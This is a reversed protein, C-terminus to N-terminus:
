CIMFNARFSLNQFNKFLISKLGNKVKSKRKFLLPTHENFDLLPDPSDRGVTCNNHFNDASLFIRLFHSVDNNKVHCNQIQTSNSLCSDNIEYFHTYKHM